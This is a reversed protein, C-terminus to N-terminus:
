WYVLPLLCYGVSPSGVYPSLVVSGSGIFIDTFDEKSSLSTIEEDMEIKPQKMEVVKGYRGEDM